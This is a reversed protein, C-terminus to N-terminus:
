VGNKLRWAFVEQESLDSQIVSDPKLWNLLYNEKIEGDDWHINCLKHSIPIVLGIYRDYKIIFPKRM